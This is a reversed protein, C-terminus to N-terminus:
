TRNELLTHQIRALKMRRLTSLYCGTILAFNVAHLLLNITGTLNFYVQSTSLVLVASAFVLYVQFLACISLGYTLAWKLTRPLHRAQVVTAIVVAMLGVRLLLESPGWVAGCLTVLHDLALLALAAKPLLAPGNEQRSFPILGVTVFLTAAFPLLAQLEVGREVLSFVRCLLYVTMVAGGFMALQLLKQDRPIAQINFEALRLKVRQLENELSRKAALQSEARELEAELNEVRQWAADEASRYPVVKIRLSTRCAQRKRDASQSTGGLLPISRTAFQGIFDGWDWLERSNIQSPAPSPPLSAARLLRM